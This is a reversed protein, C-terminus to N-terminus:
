RDAPIRRGHSALLIVSTLVVLVLNVAYGTWTMHSGINMLFWQWPFKLLAGVDTLPGTGVADMGLANLPLYFRSLLLSVATFVLAFRRDIHVDRFAACLFTVLLPYAFTAARTEGIAMALTVILFIAAGASHEAAAGMVRRLHWLVLMIAPGFAVVYAILFIAPKAVSLALSGEVFTKIDIISTSNAYLRFMIALLLARVGWLGLFFAIEKLNGVRCTALIRTFPTNRGVYYVCATLVAISLPLTTMDVPAAGSLLQFREWLTIYLVILCTAAAAAASVWIELRATAREVTPKSFVILLAIVPMVAKFALSAVAAILALLFYRREIVCLAACVGLAFATADTQVSFYLYQKLVTWNIFLAAAGISAVEASLRLARSLRVWLLAAGVLLVSDYIHFAAVVQSSGVLSVGLAKAALWVIVSPLIRDLYYEPVRQALVGPVDQALTGYFYGDFGLGGNIPVREGVFYYAILYIALGVPLVYLSSGRVPEFQASLRAM